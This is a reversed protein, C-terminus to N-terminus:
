DPVVAIVDIEVRSSVPILGTVVTTTAVPKFYRELVKHVADFDGPHTLYVNRKVVYEFSTGATELIAKINELVQVTQAEITGMEGIAARNRLGDQGQTVAVQGTVFVFGGAKTGHATTSSYGRGVGPASLIEVRTPM